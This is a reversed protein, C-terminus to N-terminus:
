EEYTEDEMIESEDVIPTEPIKQLRPGNRPSEMDEAIGPGDVTPEDATIGVKAELAALRNMIDEPAPEWGPDTTGYNLRIRRFQFHIAAADVTLIRWLVDIKKVGEPWVGSISPQYYGPNPQIATSTMTKVAGGSEDLFWLGLDMARNNGEEFYLDATLIFPDGPKIKDDDIAVTKRYATWEKPVNVSEWTDSTGPILNRPYLQVNGHTGNVATVIDLPSPSWGPLAVGRKISISRITSVIGVGNPMAIVQIKKLDVTPHDTGLLVNARYYHSDTQVPFSAFFKTGATGVYVDYSTKGEAADIEMDITYREGLVLEESLDYTALIYASNTITRGSRLVLNEGGVTVDGGCGNVSQVPALSPIDEPAPTWDVAVNGCVLMATYITTKLSSARPYSYPLLRYTDKPIDFGTFTTVYVGDAKKTAHPTIIQNDSSENKNVYHLRFRTSESEEPIDARIICTYTKDASIDETLEYYKMAYTSEVKEGSGLLLNRGGLHVDGTGGNVSSVPGTDGRVLGLALDYHDGAKTLKASAEGGPGVDSATVTMGELLKAADNARGAATDAGNAATDAKGAATNAAGAASEAARTAELMTLFENSSEIQMGSVPAADVQIYFTASSLVEDGKLISVDAEVRGVCALAQDSLAITIKGDEGIVAPDIVGTKDPKLARFVATETGAAPKIQEGHATLTVVLVRSINDAQKANVYAFYPPDYIDLTIQQTLTM